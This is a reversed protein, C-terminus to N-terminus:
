EFPVNTVVCDDGILKYESPCDMGVVPGVGRKKRSLKEPADISRADAAEGQLTQLDDVQNSGDGAMLPEQAQAIGAGILLVVMAMRKM